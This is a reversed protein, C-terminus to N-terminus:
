GHFDLSSAVEPRFGVTLLWHRHSWRARADNHRRRFPPASRLARPRERPPKELLILARVLASPRGIPDHDSGALGMIDGSNRRQHMGDVAIGFLHKSVLPVVAFRYALVKLLAATLGHDGADGATLHLM